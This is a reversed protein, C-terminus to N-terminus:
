LDELEEITEIALAARQGISLGHGSGAMMFRDKSLPRATEPVLRELFLIARKDGLEGLKGAAHSRFWDDKHSSLSSLFEFARDRDHRALHSAFWIVVLKHFQASLQDLHTMIVDADFIYEDANFEYEDPKEQARRGLNTALWKEESGLFYRIERKGYGPQADVTRMYLSGDEYYEEDISAARDILKVLVGDNNWYKQVELTGDDDFKTYRILNGEANWQKSEGIATGEDYRAYVLLNGRADWRRSEGDEKGDVYSEDLLLQGNATNLGYWRGHANGGLYNYEYYDRGDSEYQYATGSFAAGQYMAGSEDWQSDGFDLDDFQVKQPEHNM